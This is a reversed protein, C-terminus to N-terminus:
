ASRAVGRVQELVGVIAPLVDHSRGWLEGFRRGLLVRAEPETTVATFSPGVTLHPSGFYHAGVLCTGGDATHYVSFDPTWAGIGASRVLLRGSRAWRILGEVAARDAADTDLLTSADLQGLLVRCRSPGSVEEESLDLNALRIRAIAFDVREAGAMFDGIVQRVPPTSCEDLLRLEPAPRVVTAHSGASM